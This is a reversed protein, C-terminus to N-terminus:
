KGLKNGAAIIDKISLYSYVDEKKAFCFVVFVRFRFYLTKKTDKHFKSGEHCFIKCSVQITVNITVMCAVALFRRAFCPLGTM